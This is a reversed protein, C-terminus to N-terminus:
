GAVRLIELHVSRPESRGEEERTLFQGWFHFPQGQLPVLGPPWLGGEGDRGGRRGEAPSPGRLGQAHRRPRAGGVHGGESRAPRRAPSRSAAASARLRGPAEERGLPRTPRCALPPVSGRGDEKGGESGGKRGGEGAPSTEGKGKGALGPPEAEPKMEGTKRGGERGGTQDRSWCEGGRPPERPGGQLCAGRGLVGDDGKSDGILLLFDTKKIGKQRM